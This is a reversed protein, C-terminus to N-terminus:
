QSTSSSSPTPRWPRRDRPAFFSGAWVSGAKVFGSLRGSTRSPREFWPDGFGSEPAGGVRGVHERMLLWRLSLRSHALSQGLPLLLCAFVFLFPVGLSAVMGVLSAESAGGLSDAVAALSVASLVIADEAIVELAPVVIAPECLMPLMLLMLM